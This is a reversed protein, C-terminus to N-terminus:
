KMILFAAATLLVSLSDDGDDSDALLLLLILLILLDGVDTGPPLCRSLLGQLAGQPRPPPPPPCPPAPPAQVPEPQVPVPIEEVRKCRYTGDEGPIYRNYLLRV